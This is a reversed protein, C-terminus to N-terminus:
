KMSHSLFYIFFTQCVLLCAIVLLCDLCVKEWKKSNFKTMEYFMCSKKMYSLRELKVALTQFLKNPNVRLTPNTLNIDFKFSNVYLTHYKNVEIWNIYCFNWPKYKRALHLLSIKHDIKVEKFPICGKLLEPNIFLFSPVFALNVKISESCQKRVHNKDCREWFKDLRISQSKLGMIMPHTGSLTLTSFSLFHINFCRERLLWLSKSFLM